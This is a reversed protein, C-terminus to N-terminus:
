DTPRHYLTHYVRLRHELGQRVNQNYALGESLTDQRWPHVLVWAESRRINQVDM